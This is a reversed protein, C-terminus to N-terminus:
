TVISNYSSTGTAGDPQCDATGFSKGCSCTDTANPNTFKFGSELLGDVYDVVIGDLLLSSKPDLFLRLAGSDIVQDDSRPANAIKIEYEYGSCGGFKAALRIGREATYNPTGIVITKLHLEAIETLIVSM